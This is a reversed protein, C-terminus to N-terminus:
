RCAVPVSFGAAAGALSEADPAIPATWPVSLGDTVAVIVERAVDKKSGL